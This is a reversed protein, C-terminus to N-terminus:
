YQSINRFFVVNTTYYNGVAIDPRGDGDMDALAVCIPAPFWGPDSGTSYSNPSGFSGGGFSGGTWLNQFTLVYSGNGNVVVLDPRGDGNLDAIAAERPDTDAM